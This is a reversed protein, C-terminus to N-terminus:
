RSWTYRLLTLNIEVNLTEDALEV